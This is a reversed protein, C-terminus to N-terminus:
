TVGTIEVPVDFCCRSNGPHLDAKQPWDGCNVIRLAKLKPKVHRRYAISEYVSDWSGSRRFLGCAWRRGDVTGEELYPCVGAPGLYCCHDEGNGHCGDAM